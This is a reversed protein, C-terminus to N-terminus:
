TSFNNSSNNEGTARRKKGEEDRTNNIEAFEKSPRSAFSALRGLKKKSENSFNLRSFNCRSLLLFKWFIECSSPFRWSLKAHSKSCFKKDSTISHKRIREETSSKEESKRIKCNQQSMVVHQLAWRVLWDNTPCGFLMWTPQDVLECAESTQSCWIYITTPLLCSWHQTSHEMGQAPSERHKLYREATWNIVFHPNSQFKQQRSSM